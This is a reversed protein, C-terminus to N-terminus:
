RRAHVQDEEAHVDGEQEDQRCDGQLRQGLQRLICAIAQGAPIRDGDVFEREAMLSAVARSLEYGEADATCLTTLHHQGCYSHITTDGMDQTHGGTSPGPEAFGSDAHTATRYKDDEAPRSPTCRRKCNRAM